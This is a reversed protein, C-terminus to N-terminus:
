KKVRFSIQEEVALDTEGKFRWSFTHQDPILGERQRTIHQCSVGTLFGWTPDCQRWGQARPSFFECWAHAELEHSDLDITWGHVIKAPIGGARLICVFLDSMESCDGKRTLMTANADARFGNIEYTIKQNVFEFALIIFQSANIANKKLARVLEQILQSQLPWYTSSALLAKGISKIKTLQGYDQWSGFNPLLISTNGKLLINMSVEITRNSHPAIDGATIHLLSNHDDDSDVQLDPRTPNIVSQFKTTPPIYAQLEVDSATASGQNTITYQFNLTYQSPHGWEIRIASSKRSHSTLSKAYKGPIIRRIKTQLDVQIQALVSSFFIKGAHPLFSIDTLQEKPWEIIQLGGLHQITKQNLLLRFEYVYKEGPAIPNTFNVDVTHHDSHLKTKARVKNKQFVEVADLQLATTYQFGTFMKPGPWIGAVFRKVMVDNKDIVLVVEKIERHQNM